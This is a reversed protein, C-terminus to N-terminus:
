CFACDGSDNKAKMKALMEKAEDSQSGASKASKKEAKVEPKKTAVNSDELGLISM